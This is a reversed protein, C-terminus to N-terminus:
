GTVRISSWRMPVPRGPGNHTRMDASSRASVEPHARHNVRCEHFKGAAKGDLREALLIRSELLGYEVQNTDVNRPELAVIQLVFGAAAPAIHGDRDGNDCAALRLQ